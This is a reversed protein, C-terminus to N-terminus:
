DHVTAAPAAASPVHLADSVARAVRRAGPEALVITYHNVDDVEIVRMGTITPRESTREPRYLAEPEDLLGRPARLFTTPQRVSELARRYSEGGYLEAVDAGVAALDGSPKLAPPEGHLDYDVYAEVARSWRDRFAPHERWFDRYEEVSAFTMSLRRAAPGLVATGDPVAAGHAEDGSGAREPPDLPLGGDVLTLSSVRDPFRAALLVAVFAGMSHAVVAVSELGLHDLVAVLDRAHQELGYPGGLDRSRGRGRLDPAILRVGPLHDALLPWCRHNATIGHIALVAPADPSDNWIGVTLAGGLVPVAITAPAFETM